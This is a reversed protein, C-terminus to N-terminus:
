FLDQAQDLELLDEPTLQEALKRIAERYEERVQKIPAYEEDTYYGELYKLLKYDSRLLKNWLDKYQAILQRHEIYEKSYPVYIKYQIVEDYADQGKIGEEDVIWAIDKGGNEYEALVQYHGIEEKEQIADHHIVEEKDVLYGADFDLDEYKLIETKDQNYIIIKDM